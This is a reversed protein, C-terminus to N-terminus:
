KAAEEIPARLRAEITQSLRKWRALGIGLAHMYDEDRTFRYIHLDKGVRALWPTYIVLDIWDAHSLWLGGMCQSRFEKYVSEPSLWTDVVTDPAVPCKIEVRGKGELGIVVGDTSYGFWRDETLLLGAENVICGRREEYLARAVPEMARGHRMATTEFTPFELEMSKGSIRELAKMAALRYAGDTPQTHPQGALALAVTESTPPAKYGAAIAASKSDMGRKQIADVYAQQKADLKGTESIATEFVSATCVGARAEFWAETGQEVDVYIVGPPTSSITTDTM